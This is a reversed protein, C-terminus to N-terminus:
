NEISDEDYTADITVFGNESTLSMEEAAQGVQDELADRQDDPLEDFVFGGTADLSEGDAAFDLSSGFGSAGEIADFEDTNFIDDDEEIDDEGIKEDPSYMTFTVMDTGTTRLLWAFDELQEHAPPEDSVITDIYNWLEDRDGFFIESNSVAFSLPDNETQTQEHTEQNQVEEYITYPEQTEVERFEFGFFGEESSTTLEDGIEEPNFDGLLGFSDGTFIMQDATSDLGGDEDDDILEGLGAPELIFGGAFAVLFMGSLPIGLLPDDPFEDEGGGGADDEFQEDPLEDLAAFDITSAVAVDNGDEQTIPVFQAYDPIHGTTEDDGSQNDSTSDTENTDDDSGICGALAALSSAAAAQLTRRRTIRSEDQNPSM